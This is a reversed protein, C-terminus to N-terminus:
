PTTVAVPIAVTEAAPKRIQVEVVGHLSDGALKTRDVTIRLTANTGPGRAWTCSIAPDSCQNNRRKSM